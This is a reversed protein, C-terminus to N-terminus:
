FDESLVGGGLVGGGGMLSHLFNTFLLKLM